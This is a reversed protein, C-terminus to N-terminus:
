SSWKASTTLKIRDIQFFFFRVPDYVRPNVLSFATFHFSRNLFNILVIESVRVSRRTLPILHNRLSFQSRETRYISQGSLPQVAQQVSAELRDTLTSRKRLNRPRGLTNWQCVEAADLDYVNPGGFINAPRGYKKKNKEQWGNSCITTEPASADRRIQAPLSLASETVASGCPNARWASFARDENRSGQQSRVPSVFSRASSLSSLSSFSQTTWLAQRARRRNRSKVLSADLLVSFCSSPVEYNHWVGRPRKNGASGEEPRSNQICIGRCRSSAM